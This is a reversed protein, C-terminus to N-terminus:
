PLTVEKDFGHIFGNVDASCIDGGIVKNKYIIINAYVDKGYDPYNTVKYTYRMVDRRKYKSLDLGQKKQLTNYSEYVKDFEDPVTIQETEIAKEETEWGFQALFAVRDENTKIKTYNVKQENVYVATPQYEPILAVLTVIAAVCLVVIGAFKLGSAKISYVFM